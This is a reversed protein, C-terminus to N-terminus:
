SFYAFRHFEDRLRQSVSGPKGDGIIRDDIKIVPMVIQSASTIFAEAADYSEEPTFAREELRLQLAELVNMLVARTIGSLIYNDAPRTVVRGDRTIIWANSSSGETVCGDRDVFWAESAGKEKAQQKALVNPLLSVSKIDVRPWRNEPTTIVAIGSKAAAQNKEYSLNKATVVISPKVATVPFAHDRRAVGRTIQLYVLGYDVRNRRVTEHMIFEISVLPMPMAIRLESLSRQLRALHRPADVLRGGRVECVEYVGDAFQYGRDEVNVCADRSPLYRGNVYAFRSM